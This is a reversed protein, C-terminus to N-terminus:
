VQAAMKHMKCINYTNNKAIVALDVIQGARKDINKEIKAIKAELKKLEATNSSDSFNENHNLYRFYSLFLLTLLLGYLIRIDM